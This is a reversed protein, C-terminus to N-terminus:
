EIERRAIQKRKVFDLRGILDNASEARLRHREASQPRFRMARQGDGHVPEVRAAIRAFASLIRADVHALGFGRVAHLL